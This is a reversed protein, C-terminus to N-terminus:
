FTFIPGFENRFDHWARAPIGEFQAAPCARFPGEPANCTIFSRYLSSEYAFTFYQNMKWNLTAFAADSRNRGGTPTIARVDRGKAEDVTATFAITWGANRGAPNANFIRSLPFSLQAFGGVSRVPHEPIAVWNTGNFGFPVGLAGTTASADVNYVTPCAGGTNGNACTIHQGGVNFTETNAPNVGYPEYLGLGRNDNFFSYVQGGFYWKLDAGTYYKAVLTAFRTPIQLEATAGWRNGAVNAGTPFSTVLSDIVNTPCLYVFPNAITGTSVDLINSSPVGVGCTANSLESRNVLWTHRAEMGSFIIQAPAVGKAKDAQWQFVIRGSVEPRASDAGDRESVGLQTGVDTSNNGEAPMGIAPEIGLTFSRSGGFNHWLGFRFQAEREYLGGFYAAGGTTELMNAQTSSAFPTWDMGFLAFATTNDSIHHDLRMYALRLVLQRTRVSSVNRNQSRNFNGEDDFEFRGTLTNNSGAIDPWEFNAGARTASAKLWFTPSGNPGFSSGGVAPSLNTVSSTGLPGASTTVSTPFLPAVVNGLGPLLFDINYPNSTDYAATSKLFGYFKLRAGSGLKIDPVLGGTKPPDSTLVRVPAVAPIVAPAVPAQPPMAMAPEPGPEGASVHAATSVWMGQDPAPKAQVKAEAAATKNYEDQTLIGKSYLLQSLRQQQEAPTAAQNIAAAEQSTLVGKSQLLQVLPNPAPKSQDQDQQQAAALSVLGFALVAALLLSLRRKM